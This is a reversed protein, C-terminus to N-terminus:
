QAIHHRCDSMKTHEFVVSALGFVRSNELVILSNAEEEKNIEVM